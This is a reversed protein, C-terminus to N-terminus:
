NFMRRREGEGEKEKTLKWRRPRLQMRKNEGDIKSEKCTGQNKRKGKTCM